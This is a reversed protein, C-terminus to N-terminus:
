FYEAPPTKYVNSAQMLRITLLASPNADTGDGHADLSIRAYKDVPIPYENKRSDAVLSVVPHSFEDPIDEDLDWTTLTQKDLMAYVELYAQDLDDAIESSTTQSMSRLGLKRVARERIEINTPM